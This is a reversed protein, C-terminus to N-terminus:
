FKYTLKLRYSRGDQQLSDQLHEPGGPVSYHRDFLNYVGLSIETHDLWQASVLSLNCLAYGGTDGRLTKRRAVYQGEVALRARLLALPSSLNLKALHAPSNVVEQGTMEDTVRQWSYSSRLHAGENWLRQYELEVGSASVRSVNRFVLLGDREDLEQSILDSVTNRYASLLLRSSASLQQEWSLERTLIHEPRLMPNIKQGGEGPLSYYLEFANPSRFAKGVIGKVTTNLWPKYILAVRPSVAGSSLSNRDYRLGANFLLDDRLSWEDQLYLGLRNASRADNLLVQPQGPQAGASQLYTNQSFQKLQADRQYEMGALLKHQKFRTTVLNLEGGWWTSSSGDENVMDPASYIYTGAFDHSGWFLRTSLRTQGSLATNYALAINSQRDLTASRPDNFVQSYSATPIGKSREIHAASLTFAGLDARFFLQDLQEHDLRHAIGHNNDPTDYEAFYLDRGDRRYSSASLLFEADGAKGDSTTGSWGYSGRLSREGVSGVSVSAVPGAMDRGRKTIVNIVGFFANSGYVSSGPGPVYEVRDIVDLDLIFERGLSAQDYVSDNNRNGDVLLLFRTDYDGPRLFGRGGLYSYNRDNSAYLGRISSLLEALSRWGYLKIDAATIVSVSSPADALAQPFKSATSIQMALLQEISLDTLDDDALSAAHVTTGAVCLCLLLCPTRLPIHFM